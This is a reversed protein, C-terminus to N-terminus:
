YCVSMIAFREGETEKLRAALAQSADGTASSALANTLKNRTALLDNEVKDLQESLKKKAQELESVREEARTARENAARM